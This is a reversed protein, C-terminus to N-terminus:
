NAGGFLAKELVASVDGVTADEVYFDRRLNGAQHYPQQVAKLDCLIVRVCVRGKLDPKKKEEVTGARKFVTGGIKLYV